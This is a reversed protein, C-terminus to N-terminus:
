NETFHDWGGTDLAIKSGSSDIANVNGSGTEITGIIHLNLGTSDSIYRVLSEHGTILLEYDEGGSISMEQYQDPFHKKLEAHVPIDDIRITADVTSAVCIKKLDNVLGDSIDMGTKIGMDLLSIGERIRPKPLYHAEYFHSSKKLENNLLLKLGANSSGLEGTVAIVDGPVATKRQMTEPKDTSGVVTVSIFFTNSKVIDGGVLDGGYINLLDSFGLYLDEIQEVSIDARLGLTVVSYIPNCGMSAIDSYNVALSKWGLDRMDVQDSVFHVNEVMADTTVVQLKDLNSVVAADDGISLEIKSDKKPTVNNELILELRSILDFESIDSIKTM